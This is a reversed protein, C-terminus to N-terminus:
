YRFTIYDYPRLCPHPLASNERKGYVSDGESCWRPYVQTNFSTWVHTYFSRGPGNLAYLVHEASDLLSERTRRCYLLMCKCFRGCGHTANLHPCITKRIKSKEISIRFVYKMRCRRIDRLVSLTATRTNVRFTFTM